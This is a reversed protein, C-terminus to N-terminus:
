TAELSEPSIMGGEGLVTKGKGKGGSRADGMDEDGDADLEGGRSDTKDTVASGPAKAKAPLKGLLGNTTAGFGGAVKDKGGGGTLLDGIESEKVWGQGEVMRMKKKPHGKGPGPERMPKKRPSTIKGNPPLRPKPFRQKQPLDEDEILPEDINAHLKTLFFDQVLGIEHTLSQITVPKYPEPIPFASAVTATASPFTLVQLGSLPIATSM